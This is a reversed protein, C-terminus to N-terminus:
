KVILKNGFWQIDTCHVTIHAKMRGDPLKDLSTVSTCSIAIEEALKETWDEHIVRWILPDGPKADTNYRIKITKKPEEKLQSRLLSMRYYNGSKTFNANTLLIENEISALEERQQCVEDPTRIKTAVREYLNVVREDLSLKAKSPDLLKQLERRRDELVFSIWGSGKMNTLEKYEAWLMEIEKSGLTGCSVQESNKAVSNSIDNAKKQKAKKEIVDQISKIAQDVVKNFHLISKARDWDKYQELLKIFEPDDNFEVVGNVVRSAIIATIDKSLPHARDIGIKPHLTFAKPWISQEFYNWVSDPYVKTGKPLYSIREAGNDGVIAPGYNGVNRKAKEIYEKNKLHNLWKDRLSNYCKMVTENSVSYQGVITKERGSKFIIKYSYLYSMIDEIAAITDLDVLFGTCTRYSTNM